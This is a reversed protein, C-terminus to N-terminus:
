DRHGALDAAFVVKGPRLPQVDAPELSVALAKWQDQKVPGAIVSVAQGETDPAFSEVAEPTGTKPVIWVEYKWGSPAESLHDVVLAIGLSQNVFLSGQEGAQANFAVRLTGKAQMIQVAHSMRALQGEATQARKNAARLARGEINLGITLALITTAAISWYAWQWSPSQQRVSAPEKSSNM